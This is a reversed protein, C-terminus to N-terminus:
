VMAPMAVLWGLGQQAQRSDGSLVRAWVLRGLRGQPVPLVKAVLFM